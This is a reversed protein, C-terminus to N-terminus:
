SPEDDDVCVRNGGAEKARYAARDARRLLDEDSELTHLNTLSAVGVSVTVPVGTAALAAVELMVRKGFVRADALATHPLLAVFEDGGYRVVLDTDRAERRLVSAIARLANSGAVHGREDNLAKLKDVDVMAISLPHGYRVFRARENAIRRRLLRLNGLGTLEDHDAAVQLTQRARHQGLAQQVRALLEDLSFPKPMFDVQELRVDRVRAPLDNAASLFLIPVGRTSTRQRLHTATDFGSMGPLNVDLLVLDPATDQAQRLCAPGDAARDVRYGEDTLTDALAEATALDDEVILIRSNKFMQPELAIPGTALEPAPGAVGGDTPRRTLLLATMRAVLAATARAEADPARACTSQILIVGLCRDRVVLPVAVVARLEAPLRDRVPALHADHHVDDVAVLHRTTAAARVEPYRDLDIPLDSLSPRHLALVVRPQGELLICSGREGLLQTIARTAATLLERPGADAADSLLEDLVGADVLTCVDPRDAGWATAREGSDRRPTM